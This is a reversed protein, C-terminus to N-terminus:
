SGVVGGQYRCRYVEKGNYMITEEGSFRGFDGKVDNQYAWGGEALEKPGRYPMDETFNRLAKKLFRYIDAQLSLDTVFGYYVMMWVPKGQYSIVDRGGFPEGGFFNDHFLWDGEEYVITHSGDKEDLEKTSENGYGFENARLLFQKIENTKM